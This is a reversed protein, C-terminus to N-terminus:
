APINNPFRHNVKLILNIEILLAEPNEVSPVHGTNKFIKPPAVNLSEALGTLLAPPTAIDQDGGALRIAVATQYSQHNFHTHGIMNCLLAYSHDDVRKLISIWGELLNPINEFSHQCFWRPVFESALTLLGTQRVNEARQQWAETTGIVAGTNTLTISNLRDRYTQLLQQGILGGISTGIFHFQKISLADVISLLELCLDNVTISDIYAPWPESDGHGPLDWTLIQFRPLLPQILDDWVSQNMGLPHALVLLPASSDGKVKYAVVRKNYLHFNM